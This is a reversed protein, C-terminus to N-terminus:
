NNGKGDVREKNIMRELLKWQKEKTPCLTLLATFGKAKPNSQWVQGPWRHGRLLLHSPNRCVM